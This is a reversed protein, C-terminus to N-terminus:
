WWRGRRVRFHSVRTRCPILEVLEPLVKLKQLIRQRRKHNPSGAACWIAENLPTETKRTMTLQRHIALVLPLVVEARAEVVAALIAQPFGPIFHEGKLRRIPGSVDLSLLAVLDDQAM